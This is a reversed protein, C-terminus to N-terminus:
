QLVYPDVETGHGTISANIKLYLVPYIHYDVQSSSIPVTINKLQNNDVYWEKSDNVKNLLWYKKSTTLYSTCNNTLYCNKNLSADIYEGVTLLGITHYESGQKEVSKISIASDLKEVKGTNWKTNPSIMSKFSEYTTGSEYDDNLSEILGSEPWQKPNDTLNIIKMMNTTKDISIIRWKITNLQIYNNPNEGKYIYEDNTEYLGANDNIVKVTENNLITEIAPAVINPTCADMYDYVYQKKNEDYQVKVFGNMEQKTKPNKIEKKKLYGKDKLDSISICLTNLHYKDTENNDIMYKEAAKKIDSILVDYLSQQSNKIKNTIVRFSIVFIISILAITAILEILTFGKKNM